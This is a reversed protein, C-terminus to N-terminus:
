KRMTRQFLSPALPIRNSSRLSRQGARLQLKYSTAPYSESPHRLTHPLLCSQRNKILAIHLLLLTARSLARLCSGETHNKRTLRVAEDHRVHDLICHTSLRAISAWFRWFLDFARCQSSHHTFQHFLKSIPSTYLNM